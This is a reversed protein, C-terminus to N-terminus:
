TYFCYLSMTSFKSFASFHVHSFFREDEEGGFSQDRRWTSGEPSAKDMKSSSLESLLHEQSPGGTRRASRNKGPLGCAAEKLCIPAPGPTPAGHCCGGEGRRAPVWTPAPWVFRWCRGLASGRRCASQSLPRPHATPGLHPAGSPKGGEGTCSLAPLHPSLLSGAVHRFAPGLNSTETFFSAQSM